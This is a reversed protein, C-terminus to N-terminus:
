YRLDERTISTLYEIRVNPYTSHLDYLERVGMDGLFRELERLYRKSGRQQFYTEVFDEADLYLLDAFDEYGGNHIAQQIKWERFARNTQSVGEAEFDGDWLEIWRLVDSQTQILFQLQKYEDSIPLHFYEIFALLDQKSEHMKESLQIIDIEQNQTKM